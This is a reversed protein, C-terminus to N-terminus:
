HCLRDVADVFEGPHCPKRIYANAGGTNVALKMEPRTETTLIAVPVRRYRPHVRLWRLFSLGDMRPMNLDCVIVDIDRGDLMEIAAEGDEAQQVTYGSRELAMSMLTRVAQSDDILLVQRPM